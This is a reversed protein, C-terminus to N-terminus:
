DASQRKPQKVVASSNGLLLVTPTTFTSICRRPRYLSAHEGTPCLMIARLAILWETIKVKFDSCSHDQSVLLCGSVSMMPMAYLITVSAFARSGFHKIFCFLEFGIRLFDDFGEFHNDRQPAIPSEVFLPLFQEPNLKPRTVAYLGAV